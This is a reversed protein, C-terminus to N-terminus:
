TGRDWTFNKEGLNLVNIVLLKEFYIKKPPKPYGQFPSQLLPKLKEYKVQEVLQHHPEPPVAHTVYFPLVM